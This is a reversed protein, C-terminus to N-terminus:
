LITRICIELANAFDEVTMDSGKDMGKPNPVHIFGCPINPAINKMHYCVRFFTDNCVYTGASYSLGAKFGAAEMADVMQRVPLTSFLGDPADEIIREWKPSQGANDPIRADALNIASVEPTIKDRGAAVGTMILASPTEHEIQKIIMEAAEGFVVPLQLKEIKENGIMDPLLKVAERSPNLAANDFPEFGTILIM